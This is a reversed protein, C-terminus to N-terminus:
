DRTGCKTLLRGRRFVGFVDLAPDGDFATNLDHAISLLQNTHSDNQWFGSRHESLLKQEDLYDM